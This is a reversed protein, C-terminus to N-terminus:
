MSFAPFLRHACRRIKRLMTGAACACARRRTLSRSGRGQEVASFAGGQLNLSLISAESLAERYGLEEACLWRKAAVHHRVPETVEPGFWQALFAAASDEHATNMGARALADPDDEFLHGIDHLLAATVLADSVGDAEALAACQLAHELQSVPEGAYEEGGRRALITEIEARM